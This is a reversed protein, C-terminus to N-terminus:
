IRVDILVPMPDPGTMIKSYHSSPQSPINAIAPGRDGSKGSLASAGSM